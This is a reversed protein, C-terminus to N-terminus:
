LFLKIPIKLKSEVFLISVPVILGTWTLINSDDVTIDRFVKIASGRIDGLEQLLFCLCTTYTVNTVLLPHLM